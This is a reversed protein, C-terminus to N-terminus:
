EVSEERARRPRESVLRRSVLELPTAFGWAGNPTDRLFHNLRAVDCGEFGGESRIVHRAMIMMDNMSGFVSRSRTRALRIQRYDIDGLADPPLGESELARVIQSYVYGGTPRLTGVGVNVTLSSFLTGDHVLVVCKKGDIYVVNAYWDEVSPEVDVLKPKGGIVDLM